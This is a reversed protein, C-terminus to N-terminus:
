PEEGVVVEIKREQGERLVTLTVRQGVETHEALYADLDDWSKLPAGDIATLIDGGVLLRRNGFIQESTAGHLDTRAAPSGQYIRAILLGQDVPLGLAQALVPTLAYGLGEIGLWPRAYRGTKILVPAVRKAKNIPIALGVGANAGTPSFIATNIGIVRGQSDLLPGGSNGRNIAADTQIVGRLVRDNDVQMTRNLASIVGVTLTRQFQGFPNGIAVATQGVQLIDSDGMELAKVGPPLQAVKLVALDNAPDAGVVEAPTATEDGFAVDISQAGEIVHYNTLIHGQDDWVFGSGSGSEPVAGFFFSERLVQTTINVVAPSASQYLQILRQEPDLGPAVPLLPTITPAPTPTPPSIVTPELTRSGLLDAVVPIRSALLAGAALGAACVCVVFLLLIFVSRVRM